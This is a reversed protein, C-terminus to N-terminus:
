EFLSFVIYTNMWTATFDDLFAINYPQISLADILSEVPWELAGNLRWSSFM